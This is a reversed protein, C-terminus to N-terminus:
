AAKREPTNLYKALSTELDDILDPDMCRYIDPIHLCIVPKANLLEAFQERLFRAQLEEMVFIIDAWRIHWTNVPTRAERAIGASKVAYGNRGQFLREATL